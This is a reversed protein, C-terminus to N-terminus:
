DIILSLIDENININKQKTKYITIDDVFINENKNNRNIIKYQDM